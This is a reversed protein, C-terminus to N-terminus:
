KMENATHGHGAQLRVIAFDRAQQQSPFPGACHDRL